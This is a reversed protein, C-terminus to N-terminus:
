PVSIVVCVCVKWESNAAAAESKLKQIKDGMNSNSKKAESEEAKALKWNAQAAKTRVKEYQKIDSSMDVLAIEVYSKLPTFVTQNLHKMQLM